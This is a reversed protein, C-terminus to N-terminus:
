VTDEETIANFIYAHIIQRAKLQDKTFESDISNNLTIDLIGKKIFTDLIVEQFDENELLRLMQKKM